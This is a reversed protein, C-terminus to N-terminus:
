LWNHSNPWVFSKSLTQNPPPWQLLSSVGISSSGLWFRQDPRLKQKLQAKM